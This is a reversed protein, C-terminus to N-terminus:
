HPHSAKNFTQTPMFPQLCRTSAESCRSSTLFCCHPPTIKGQGPCRKEKYIGQGTQNHGSYYPLSVQLCIKRGCSVFAFFRARFLCFSSLCHPFLFLFPKRHMKLLMEMREGKEKSTIREGSTDHVVPQVCLWVTAKQPIETNIGLMIQHRPKLCKIM